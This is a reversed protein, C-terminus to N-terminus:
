KTRDSIWEAMLRLVDPSITEEIRIYEYESGTVATQFAHNLAPLKKITFDKNGAEELGKEIIPMNKAPDVQQDLEGYIALVPCNVKSLITKNDLALIYRWWPNLVQKIQAEHRGKPWNLRKIADPSLDEYIGWLKKAATASDTNEGAIQYIQKRWVRETEIDEEKAGQQKLQGLIQDLAVDEFNEFAGAMSVVFAVQPSESAAIAAVTGGESHGIIGIKSPNIEHRSKLYKIAELADDAFDGTTSRGFNGTSGGAGRDDFRLVAIGNRTLYDAIIWFPKHKGVEEDRNQQGTGTVLVVAPLNNKSAPYTLTGALSVGAKKNEFVVSEEVYPYPKVPEQPRKLVPLEEVHSFLIPFAGPGQRFQSQITRYENDVAGAIELGLGKIRIIVSDNRFIVEDCPIDGTAQDIINLVAKIKNDISETVIIGMRLKVTNPIELEGLWKGKIKDQAPPNRHQSFSLNSKLILGLILSIVFINISSRKM